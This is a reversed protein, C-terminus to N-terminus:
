LSDSAFEISICVEYQTQYVEIMVKAKSEGYLEANTKASLGTSDYNLKFSTLSHM